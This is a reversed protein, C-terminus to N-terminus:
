GTHMYYLFLLISVLPASSFRFLFLGFNYKDACQPLELQYESSVILELSRLTSFFIIHGNEGESKMRVM